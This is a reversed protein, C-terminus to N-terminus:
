RHVQNPPPPPECRQARSGENLASQMMPCNDPSEVEILPSPDLGNDPLAPDMAGMLLEKPWGARAKILAPFCSKFPGGPAQLLSSPPTILVAQYYHLISM